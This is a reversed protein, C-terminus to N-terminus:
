SLPLPRLLGDWFLECISDQRANFDTNSVFERDERVNLSPLKLSADIFEEELVEGNSSVEIDECSSTHQLVSISVETEAPLM